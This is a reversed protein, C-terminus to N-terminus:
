TALWKAARHKMADSASSLAREKGDGCCIDCAFICFDETTAVPLGAEDLARAIDDALIFAADFAEGEWLLQNAPSVLAKTRDDELWLRSDEGFGPWDPPNWVYNAAEDGHDRLFADRHSRLCVGLQPPLLCDYAEGDLGICLAFVPEDLALGALLAPIRELLHARLAALLGDLTEGEPPRQWLVSRGAFGVLEIVVARGAEDYGVELRRDNRGQGTDWHEGDIAVLREGDYTYRETGRGQAACTRMRVIRHDELEYRRVNIPAADGYSYHWSEITGEGHVLFTEYRGVENYQHAVRLNGRADFGYSHIGAPPKGAPASPLPRGRAQRHREFYFPEIEHLPGTAWEWRVVAAESEKKLAPRRAKAKKFLEELGIEPACEPSRLAASLGRLADVYAAGGGGKTGKAIASLRERTELLARPDPMRGLAGELATVDAGSIEAVATRVLARLSDVDLPKKRPSM